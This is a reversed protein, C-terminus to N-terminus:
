KQAGAQNSKATTTSPSVDTGNKIDVITNNLANLHELNEGFKQPLADYAGFTFHFRLDTLVRYVNIAGQSHKEAAGGDSLKEQLKKVSTAESLAEVIGWGDRETADARSQDETLTGWHSRLTALMKRQAAPLQLGTKPNMLGEVAERYVREKFFLAVLEPNLNTFATNDGAAMSVFAAIVERAGTSASKTNAAADLQQAHPGIIDAAKMIAELNHATMMGKVEPAYSTMLKVINATGAKRITQRNASNFLALLTSQVTPALPKQTTENLIFKGNIDQPTFMAKLTQPDVGADNIASVSALAATPLAKLTTISEQMEAPLTKIDTIGDAFEKFIPLNEKQMAFNNMAHNRATEDEIALIEVMRNIQEESLKTVFNVPIMRLQQVPKQMEKPLASIDTVGDAFTKFIPLNEKKLAFKMLATKQATADAISGIAVLQASKAEGLANFLTTPLSRLQEIPKQMAPPLTKTDAVGDAFTKLATLNGQQQLFATVAKTRAATDPNASISILQQMKDTGLTEKLTAYQARNEKGLLDPNDIALKSLEQKAEASVSSNVQVAVFAEDISMLTGDEKPTLLQEMLARLAESPKGNKMMSTFNTELAEVSLKSDQSFEKLLTLTRTRYDDSLLVDLRNSAVIQRMATLVQDRTSNDADAASSKLTPVLAKMMQLAKPNKSTLVGYLVKDNLEMKGGNVENAIPYLVDDYYQDIVAATEASLGKREQLLAIREDSAMNHLMSAAAGQIGLKEALWPLNEDIFADVMGAFDKIKEKGGFIKGLLEQGKESHILKYGGFLVFAGILISGWPWNLPNLAGLFDWIQSKKLYEEGRDPNNQSSM